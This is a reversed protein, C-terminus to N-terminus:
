ATFDKKGLLFAKQDENLKSNNTAVVYNPNKNNNTTSVESSNLEALKANLDVGRNFQLRTTNPHPSRELRFSDRQNPNPSSSLRSAAKFREMMSQIIQKESEPNVNELAM